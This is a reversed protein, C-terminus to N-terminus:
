ASSDFITREFNQCRQFYIPRSDKDLSIKEQYLNEGPPRTPFRVSMAPTLQGPGIPYTSHVRRDHTIHHARIDNTTHDLAADTQRRILPRETLRCLVKRGRDRGTGSVRHPVEVSADLATLLRGLDSPRACRQHAAERHSTRDWVRPCRTHGSRQHAVREM